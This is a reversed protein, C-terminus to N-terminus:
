RRVIVGGAEPQQYDANLRAFSAEREAAIFTRLGDAQFPRLAPEHHLVIEAALAWDFAQADGHLWLPADDPVLALLTAPADQATVASLRVQQPWRAPLPAALTLPPWLALLRHPAYTEVAPGDATRVFETAGAFVERVAGTWAGPQWQTLLRPDHAPRLQLAQPDPQWVPQQAAKSEGDWQAAAQDSALRTTADLGALDLPPPAQVEPLDIEPSSAALAAEARLDVQPLTLEPPEDRVPPHRPVEIVPVDEVDDATWREGSRLVGGKARPPTVGREPHLRATLDSLDPAPQQPATAPRMRRVFDDLARTPDDDHHDEPSM